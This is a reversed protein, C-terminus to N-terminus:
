VFFTNTHFSQMRASIEGKWSYKTLFTFNLCWTHGTDTIQSGNTKNEDFQTVMMGSSSLGYEYKM